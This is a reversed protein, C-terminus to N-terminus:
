KLIWDTKDWRPKIACENNKSYYNRPSLKNLKMKCVLHIDVFCHVPKHIDGNVDKEGTCNKM